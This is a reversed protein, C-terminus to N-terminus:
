AVHVLRAADHGPRGLAHAPTSDAPDDHHDTADDHDSHDDNGRVREDARDDYDVDNDDDDIDDDHTADDDRRRARVGRPPLAARRPDPRRTPHHLGPDSAPPGREGREDRPPTDDDHGPSRDGGGDM